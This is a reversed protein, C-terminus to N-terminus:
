ILIFNSGIKDNVTFIKTVINIKKNPRCYGTGKISMLKVLSKNIKKVFCSSYSLGDLNPLSAFQLINPEDFKYSKKARASLGDEFYRRLGSSYSRSM